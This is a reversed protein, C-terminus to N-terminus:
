MVPTQATPVSPSWQPGGRWLGHGYRSNRTPALQASFAETGQCPSDRQGSGKNKEGSALREEDKQSSTSGKRAESLALAKGRSRQLQVSQPHSHCWPDKRGTHRGEEVERLGETGARAHERHCPLVKSLFPQPTHLPKPDLMAAAQPLTTRTRWHTRLREQVSSETHM